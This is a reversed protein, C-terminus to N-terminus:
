GVGGRECMVWGLFVVVCGEGCRHEGGVKLVFGFGKFFFFGM